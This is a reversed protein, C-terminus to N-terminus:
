DRRLKKTFINKMQYKRELINSSRRMQLNNTMGERASSESKEVADLGIRPGMYRGILSTDKGGSGSYLPRPSFSVVEM